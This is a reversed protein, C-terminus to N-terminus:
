WPEQLIILTSGRKYQNQIPALYLFQWNWHSVVGKRLQQNYSHSTIPIEKVKTTSVLVWRGAEKKDRRGVETKWTRQSSCFLVLGKGWVWWDKGPVKRLLDPPVWAECSPGVMLPTWVSARGAGSPNYLGGSTNSWSCWSHCIRWVLALLFPLTGKTQWRANKRRSGM